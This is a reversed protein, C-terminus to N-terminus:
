AARVTRQRGAFAGGVLLLTLAAIVGLAIWVRSNGGDLVPQPAPKVAPAPTSVVPPTVPFGRTTLISLISAPPYWWSPLFRGGFLGTQGPLTFIVPGGKAFPYLYQNVAVADPKTLRVTVVYRPGLDGEPELGYYGTDSPIIGTGLVFASFDKSDSDPATMGEGYPGFALYGEIQIPTPLGPGAVLLQGFMEEGPGKAMAPAAVAMLVAIVGLALALLRKM